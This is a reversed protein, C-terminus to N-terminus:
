EQTEEADQFVVAYTQGIEKGVSAVYGAFIEKARDEAQQKLTDDSNATELAKEQASNLASTKEEQTISTFWGTETVPTTMSSPDIDPKGQVEVPPLTITVTGNEDPESVEVKDADIGMNVTADYEFWLRKKGINGIGFLYGNADQEYKAVNHYYCKMTTLQAIYRINSFNPEEQQQASCGALPCIAVLLLAATATRVVKSTAKM